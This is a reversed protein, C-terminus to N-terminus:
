ERLPDFDEIAIGLRRIRTFLGNRSIGLLTAAKSRNGGTRVMAERILRRELAEVQAELDLDTPAAAPEPAVASRLIAPSLAASDLAQGRPCFYVMRHVEHELERVNGPWPHAQLLRLARVTIGRVSKGSEACAQRLFHAVLGPLDEKRHRLPPAELVFGALR